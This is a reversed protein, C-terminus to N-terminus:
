VPALRVSLRLWEWLLAAFVMLIFNKALRSRDWKPFRLNVLNYRLTGGTGQDQDESTCPRQLQPQTDREMGFKPLVNRSQSKCVDNELMTSQLEQLCEIVPTAGPQHYALQIPTAGNKDTSWVDDAAGLAILKKVAALNGRRAAHHLITRGRCDTDRINGGCARLMEIVETRKTEAAYSLATRGHQDRCNINPEGVLGLIYKVMAANGRQAALHLISRGENDKSWVGTPDSCREVYQRCIRPESKSSWAVFHLLTMGQGDRVEGDISDGHCQLIAGVVENFLTHLPTKGDINCYM